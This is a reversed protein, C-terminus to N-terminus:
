MTQRATPRGKQHRNTKNPTREEPEVVNAAAVSLDITGSSGHAVRSGDGLTGFHTAPARMIYIYIDTLTVAFSGYVAATGFEVLNSTKEKSIQVCIEVLIRSKHAHTLIQFRATAM